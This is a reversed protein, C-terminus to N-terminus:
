KIVKEFVELEAIAMQGGVQDPGDPKLAQVRVYRGEKVTLAHEYRGTESASAQVVDDWTKGDLSTLIKYESAFNKSAFQIIVKGIPFTKELDVQYAWAWEGSAVTTTAPIGDNGYRAVRFQNPTLTKDGDISLLFAPKGLALNLSPQALNKDVVSWPRKLTIKLITSAPDETISQLDLNLQDAKSDFAVTKGQNLWQVEKVEATSIPLSFKKAEPLGKKGWGNKLFHLYITDRGVNIMSYGWPANFFPGPDVQTYSETRAPLGKPSAWDAMGKQCKWFYSSDLSAL